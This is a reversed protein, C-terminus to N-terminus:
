IECFEAFLGLTKEMQEIMQASMNQRRKQDMLRTILSAVKPDYSTTMQKTPITEPPKVTPPALSEQPFVNIKASPEHESKNLREAMDMAVSTNPDGSLATLLGAGRGNMYIKRGELYEMHTFDSRELASEMAQKVRANPGKSPPHLFAQAETGLATELREIDDDTKGEERFTQRDCMTLTEGSKGHEAFMQLAQGMAWDHSRDIQWALPSPDDLSVMHAHSIRALEREIVATLLRRADSKSLANTKMSDFIHTSEASVVAAVRKAIKPDNTRLSIQILGDGLNVPLRKRWAYTAGRRLLNSQLGMNLAGTFPVLSIM